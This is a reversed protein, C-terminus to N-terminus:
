CACLITLLGNLKDYPTFACVACDLCFNYSAPADRKVYADMERM